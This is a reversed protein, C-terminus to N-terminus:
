SDYQVLKSQILQVCMINAKEVIKKIMGNSKAFLSIM